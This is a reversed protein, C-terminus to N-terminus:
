ASAKYLWALKGSELKVKIRKYPEPEYEDALPLEDGSVEFVMGEISDEMDNSIIATRQYKQEGKSLFSDGDIEIDSIKYGKLIDRTGDLIRGFLQLQVRDEQLTGYSFIYETM